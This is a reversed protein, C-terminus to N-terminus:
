TRPMDPAAAVLRASPVERRRTWVGPWRAAWKRRFRRQGDEPQNIQRYYFEAASMSGQKAERDIWRYQEPNAFSVGTPHPSAFAQPM